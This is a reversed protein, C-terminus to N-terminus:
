VANGNFTIYLPTDYCVNTSNNSPLTPTGSLSTSYIALMAPSSTVSGAANSVVVTYKAIDTFGASAVSYTTATATPILAGNKYWQYTPAPSACGGEVVSFSVPDGLNVLVNAPQQSICPPVVVVITFNTSPAGLYNSATVTYTGANGLQLNSLALSSSSGSQVLNNSNDYWYFSPAPSGLATVAVNTGHGAIVTANTFSISTITPATDSSTVGLAVPASSVSGYANTMVVFVNGNADALQASTFTLTSTFLTSGVTTAGSITSGNGTPGNALAVVVGSANTEYWQYGIPTAASSSVGVTFTATNGAAVSVPVPPSTIEANAPVLSIGSLTVNVSGATTNNLMFAFENFSTTALTSTSVGSSYALQNVTGLGNTMGAGCAAYSSTSTGVSVSNASSNMNLQFQMGQTVSNTPYGTKVTSAGPKHASDYQFFTAVSSLRYFMEFSPNSTNFDTWYGTDTLRSPTNGPDNLLGMGLIRGTGGPFMGGSANMSFNVKTSSSAAAISVPAFTETTFIRETNAPITFTVSGYTTDGGTAANTTVLAGVNNYSNWQLQAFAPVAMVCALAILSAPAGFLNSKLRSVTNRSRIISNNM